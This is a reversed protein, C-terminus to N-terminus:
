KLEEDTINCFEKLAEIKGYYFTKEHIENTKNRLDKYHKIRKIAEQRLAYALIEEEPIPISHGDNIIDKLTKLDSM